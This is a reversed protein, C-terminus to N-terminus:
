KPAPSIPTAPTLREIDEALTSNNATVVNGSMSLRNRAGM